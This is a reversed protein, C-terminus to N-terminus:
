HLHLRKFMYFFSHIEHVFRVSLDDTVHDSKFAPHFQIALINMCITVWNDSKNVNQNYSAVRVNSISPTYQAERGEMM